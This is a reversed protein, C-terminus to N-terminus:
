ARANRDGRELRSLPWLWQDIWDLTALNAKTTKNDYLSVLWRYGDAFEAARDSEGLELLRDGWERVMWRGDREPMGYLSLTGGGGIMPAVMWTHFKKSKIAVKLDRSFEEGMASLLRHLPVKMAGDTPHVGAGRWQFGEDQFVHRCKYELHTRERCVLCFFTDSDCSDCLSNNRFVEGPNGCWKCTGNRYDTM